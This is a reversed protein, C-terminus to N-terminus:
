EECLFNFNVIKLIVLIIILNVSVVYYINVIHFFHYVIIVIFTDFLINGHMTLFTAAQRKNNLQCISKSFIPFLDEQM